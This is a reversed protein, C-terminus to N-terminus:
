HGFVFGLRGILSRARHALDSPAKALGAVGVTILLAAKILKFVGIATIVRNSKGV